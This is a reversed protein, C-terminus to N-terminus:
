SKDRKALLFQFLQPFNSSIKRIQIPFNHVAMNGVGKIKYGRRRFDWTSWKSVHTRYPNDDLADQNFYHFPTSVIVTQAIRELESLMKEGDEKPLHEIVEICTAVEFEENKFPLPTKRLDM